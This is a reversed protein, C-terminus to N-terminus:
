MNVMMPPAKLHANRANGCLKVQFHTLPKKIAEFKKM